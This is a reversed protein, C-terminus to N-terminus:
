VQNYTVRVKGADINAIQAFAARSLNIDGTCDRCYDTVTVTVTGTTTKCANPATNAPGTCAVTFQKGCVSGGNWLKDSVGAIMDGMDQNQYCASPTNHDHFVALGQEAESPNPLCLMVLVVMTSIVVLKTSSSSGHRHLNQEM